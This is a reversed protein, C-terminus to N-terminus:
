RFARRAGTSPVAVVAELGIIRDQVDKIRGQYGGDYGVAEGYMWWGGDQAAGDDRIAQFSHLAGNWWALAKDKEAQTIILENFENASLKEAERAMRMYLDGLHFRAECADHGGNVYSYDAIVRNLLFLGFEGRTEYNGFNTGDALPITLIRWLRDVGRGLDITARSRHYDYMEEDAVLGAWVDIAEDYAATAASREDDNPEQADDGNGYGWNAAVDVLSSVLGERSRSVDYVDAGPYKATDQAERFAAAAETMWVRSGDRSGQEFNYSAWCIQSNVEGLVRYAHAVARGGSAAAYAQRDAGDLIKDLEAIARNYYGTAATWEVQGGGYRYDASLSIMRGIAEAADGRSFGCENLDLIAGGGDVLEAVQGYRLAAQELDAIASTYATGNSDARSRYVGALERLLWIRRNPPTFGDAEFRADIAEYASIAEQFKSADWSGWNQLLQARAMYADFFFWSSPNLNDFPAAPGSSTDCLADLRGLAEPIAIAIASAQGERDQWRAQGAFEAVAQGYSLLASAAKEGDDVLSGDKGKISLVEDVSAGLPAFLSRAQAFRSNRSHEFIEERYAGVIEEGARARYHPPLGSDSLAQDAVNRALAFQKLGVLCNAIDIRADRVCGSASDSGPHDVARQYWDKAESFLAVYDEGTKGRVDWARNQLVQGLRVAAYSYATPNADAPYSVKLAARAAAEAKVYDRETWLWLAVVEARAVAAPWSRDADPYDAPVKKYATEAQTLMANRVPGSATNKAEDRYTHALALLAYAVENATRRDTAIAPAAPGYTDLIRVLNARAAVPDKKDWLLGESAIRAVCLKQWPLLAEDSEARAATALIDLDPGRDRQLNALERYAKYIWPGQAEIGQGTFFSGNVIEEYRAKAFAEDGGAMMQAVSYYIMSKFDSDASLAIAADFGTLAEAVKGDLIDCYAIGAICWAEAQSGPYEAKLAALKVRTEARTGEPEIGLGIAQFKSLPTWVLDAPYLEACKEWQSKAADKQGLDQYCQGLKYRAEAFVATDPRYRSLLVLYQDRAAAKDDADLLANAASLREIATMGDVLTAGAPDSATVTLYAAASKGGSDTVRLMISYTGAVFPTFAATESTAGAIATGSGPPAAIIRWEFSKTKADTLSADDELDSSSSADLQVETGTEVTRDDGGDAVPATDSGASFGAGISDKLDQRDGIVVTASEAGSADTLVMYSELMAAPIGAAFAQAGQAAGGAVTALVADAAGQDGFATAILSVGDSAAGVLAAAAEATSGAIATAAGSSVGISVNGILGLVDGEGISEAGLAAAIGETAGSAASKVFAASDGDEAGLLAASESVGRSISLVLEGVGATDMGSVGSSAAASVAGRSIMGIAAAKAVTLGSGADTLADVAAKAISGVAPSLYERTLGGDGLSGVISAVARGAAAPLNGASVGTRQLSQVAAKSIRSLIASVAAVRSEAARGNVSRGSAATGGFSDLVGNLAGVYAAIIAETKAIREEDSPLALGDVSAVAGEVAKPVYTELDRSELNAEGVSARAGVRVLEAQAASFSPDGRLAADAEGLYFSIAPGTTILIEDEDDGPLFANLMGCAALSAVVSAAVLSKLFVQRLRSRDSM